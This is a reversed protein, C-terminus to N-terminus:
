GRARKERILLLRKDLGLRWYRQADERLVKMIAAEAKALSRAEGPRLASRMQSRAERAAELQALEESGGRRWFEDINESRLQKLTRGGVLGHRQL